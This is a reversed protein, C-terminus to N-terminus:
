RERSWLSPNRCRSHRSRRSSACHETGRIRVREHHGGGHVAAHAQEEDVRVRLAHRDFSPRLGVADAGSGDHEGFAGAVRRPSPSALATMSRTTSVAFAASAASATPAISAESVM